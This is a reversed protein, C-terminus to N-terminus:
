RRKIKFSDGKLLVKFTGPDLSLDTTPNTCDRISPNHSRSKLDIGDILIDAKLGECSTKFEALSFSPAAGAGVLLRNQGHNLKLIIAHEFVSIVELKTEGSNFYLDGKILPAVPIDQNRIFELFDVSETEKATPLNVKIEKIRVGSLILPKLALRYKPLTSSLILLDIDKIKQKKLYPLLSGKSDGADLLFVKGDPMKILQSDVEIQTPGGKILTWEVFPRKDILYVFALLYLGILALGIAGWKIFFKQRHSQAMLIPDM